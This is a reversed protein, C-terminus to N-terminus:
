RGAKEYEVQLLAKRLKVLAADVEEVTYHREGIMVTRVDAPMLRCMFANVAKLERKTM